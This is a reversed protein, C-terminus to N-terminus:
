RPDPDWGKAREEPKKWPTLIRYDRDGGDPAEHHGEQIWQLKRDLTQAEEVKAQWELRDDTRGAKDALAAERRFEEIADRVYSGRLKAMRNKDFRHYHALAGFAFPSTGQASAIHWFIPRSKYLACHYEFFM